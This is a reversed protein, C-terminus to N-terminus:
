YEIGQRAMVGQDFYHKVKRMETVLHSTAMLRESANQGTMVIELGQPKAKLFDIVESEDLLGYAIAVAVEDLVLLDPQMSEVTDVMKQWLSRSMAIQKESPRKIIFSDDWERLVVIRDDGLQRLMDIEGSPVSKMFQVFVVRLGNGLARLTQGVSATTKGKGEGTYLQIYGERISM